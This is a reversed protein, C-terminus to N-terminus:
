GYWQMTEQGIRRQGVPEATALEDFTEKTLRGPIRVVYVQGCGSFSHPVVPALYASDGPLLVRKLHSGAWHLTVPTEGTNYLFQHLHTELKAGAGDVQLLFSKLDPQHRTRVLPTLQYSGDEPFSRAPGHRLFVVDEEPRLAEVCLDRPRVGLVRSNWVFSSDSFLTPMTDGPGM